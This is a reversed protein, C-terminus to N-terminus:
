KDGVDNRMKREQNRRRRGDVLGLAVERAMPVGDEGLEPRTITLKQGGGQDLIATRGRGEAGLATCATM